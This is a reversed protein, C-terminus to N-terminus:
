ISTSTFNTGNAADDHHAGVGGKRVVRLDYRMLGAGLNGQSRTLMWDGAMAGFPRSGTCYDRILSCYSFTHHGTAMTQPNALYCAEATIIQGPM